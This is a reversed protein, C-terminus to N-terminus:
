LGRGFRAAESQRYQLPSAGCDRKFQRSFHFQDPFGCARSVEAVSLDTSALLEQARRLRVHKVYQMPAAGITERFLTHFRSPSLSAVEALEERTIPEGAHQDIYSLVPGLRHRRGVAGAGPRWGRSTALLLELLEFAVRSRRTERRIADISLSGSAPEGHDHECGDLRMRLECLQGGLAPLVFEIDLLDVLDSAGSVKFSAHMWHFMGQSASWARYRVGAPLVYGSGPPVAQPDGGELQIQFGSETQGVVCYPLSILSQSLSSRNSGFALIRPQVYGPVNDAFGMDGRWKAM